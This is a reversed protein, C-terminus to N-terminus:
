ARLVYHSSSPHSLPRIPRDRFGNHGIPVTPEFGVGEAPPDERFHPGPLSPVRPGPAKPHGPGPTTTTIPGDSSTAPRTLALKAGSRGRADSPSSPVSTQSPKSSRTRAVTVSTSPSVRELGHAGSCRTWTGAGRGSVFPGSAPLRALHGAVGDTVGAGTRAVLDVEHGHRHGGAAGGEFRYRDLSFPDVVPPSAFCLDDLVLKMPPDEGGLAQEVEVVGAPGPWGGPSRSDKQTPLHDAPRALGQKNGVAISRSKLLPV